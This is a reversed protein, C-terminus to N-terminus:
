LGQSFNLVGTEIAKRLSDGVYYDFESVTKTYGSLKDFQKICNTNGCLNELVSYAWADDKNDFDLDNGYKAELENHKNTLYSCVEFMEKLLEDRRM